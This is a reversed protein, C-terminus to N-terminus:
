GPADISTNHFDANINCLTESTQSCAMSQKFREYSTRLPMADPSQLGPYESLINRAESKMSLAAKTFNSPSLSDPHQLFLPSIYDQKFASALDHSCFSFLLRLSPNQLRCAAPLHTPRRARFPQFTPARSRRAHNDAASPRLLLISKCLLSSHWAQRLTEYLCRARLCHAHACHLTYVEARNM